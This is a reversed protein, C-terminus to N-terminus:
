SLGLIVKASYIANPTAKRQWAQNGPSWKWGQRKMTERKAPEPIRDFFIQVRDADHNAVVTVGGAQAIEEIGTKRATNVTESVAQLQWIKHRATLIPKQLKAQTDRIFQLARGVLEGDGNNALREIRGAISNVFASRDYPLKGADVGAIIALDHVLVRELKHWDDSAVQAGTRTDLVARAGAKEAKGKWDLFEARRRDITDLRKQNRQTPFNAPGVVFWSAGRSQAHWIAHQHERYNAKYREIQAPILAPQEATKALGALKQHFAQVAEVYWRIDTDARQEPHHSLNNYSRVGLERNLDSPSVVIDTM